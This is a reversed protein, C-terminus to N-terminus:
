QSLDYLYISAGVRTYADLQTGLTDLYFLFLKEEDVGSGDYIHSFLIWVRPTDELEDLEDLYVSWDDRSGSNTTYSIGELGYQQKYYEFAPKAGYYLHLSDGDQWHEALYTLVPKIEQRVRPNILDLAAFLVPHFLLLVALLIGLWNLRSRVPRKTSAVGHAILLSLIPSLYLIMRSRFPYKQLGSAILAFVIPSCLELLKTRRAFAADLLGYLFAFAGLGPLYLGVVERFSEFFMGSFWQMDALSKPPFPMFARQNSWYDLLLEHRTLDTLSLVYSAGFGALWIVFIPLLTLGEKWDRRMLRELLLSTGLGALVFVAPHSLWIAVAGAVAYTGFRLITPSKSRVWITLYIILLTIMVDSSYQKVESSYYILVGSFSLLAVAIPIAKRGLYFAAVRYFVPLAFVGCILPYIRLVLDRSGPLPLLLKEIILFGIPAGQNYDLPELLELFSREVINRSILVEDFWLARNYAFQAVRLVIGILIITWILWKSDYVRVLFEQVTRLRTQLSVIRKSKNGIHM